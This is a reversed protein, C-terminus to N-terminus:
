GAASRFLALWASNDLHRVHKGLKTRVVRRQVNKEEELKTIVAGVAAASRSSTNPMERLFANLAEQQVTLDNLDGLISQVGKLDKTFRRLQKGAFLEGFVEILYRLKKCQVRLQHLTKEDSEDLRGIEARIRNVHKALAKGAELRIAKSAVAGDELSQFRSRLDRV